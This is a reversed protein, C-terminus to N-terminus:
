VIYEIKNNPFYKKMKDILFTEAEKRINIRYAYKGNGRGTM